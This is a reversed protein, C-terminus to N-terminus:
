TKLAKLTKLFKKWTKRIKFVTTLHLTHIHLFGVFFVRLPHRLLLSKKQNQNTVYGM